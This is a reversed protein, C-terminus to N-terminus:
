SFPDTQVGRRYDRLRTKFQPVIDARNLFDQAPLLDWGQGEDGLVIQAEVHAPVAGAFFWVTRGISNTYARGWHVQTPVVTIAFEEHTERLACALPTEAGERGGGPLDWFGAWLLGPKDDRHLVLLRNGVFLALKAGMFSRTLHGM